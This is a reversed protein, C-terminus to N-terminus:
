KKRTHSLFWEYLEPNKYTETWSDHDAEPYVTYRVPAKLKKLAQVMEASYKEPVLDDKAGHFAWVPLHDIRAADKPDSGGCIPAIAAFRDPYALAYNWSGFGGMSLGTLYLRDQDVRYKPIVEDLLANLQPTSWWENFPCQPIVVVFPFNKEKALIKALGQRKVDELNSGREGAGHLFLIMPWQKQPDRNYDEPTYVYYNQKLHGTLQKLGFWWQGNRSWVNDRGVAPKAQVETEALGALLAAANANDNLSYDMLSKLYDNLQASQKQAVQPPIGLEAPLPPMAISWEVNRWNLKAPQRYLTCFRYYTEGSAAKIAVIAGYRGDKEATTVVQYGLNYFTPTITYRGILDEIVGPADFEFKPFEKGAFVPKYRLGIKEFAEQRARKIEPPRVSDFAGNVTVGDPLTGTLPTELVAVARGEEAQLTTEALVQAGASLRVPKQAWEAPAIVRTSLRRFNEMKSRVALQVPASAATTLELSQALTMDSNSKNSPFWVLQTKAGANDRDNAYIQFRIKEQPAHDWGLNTWPLRMELIYGHETKQRQVEVALPPLSASGTRYDFFFHNPEPLAPKLGPSVVVQYYMGPDSEKGIFIELGDDKWLSSTNENEEVQDDTIEALLVLGRDDWAFRLHADFNEPARIKGEVDALVNVQFGKGQWDTAAGDIVLNPLSPVRYSEAQAPKEPGCSILAWSLFLLSNLKTKM